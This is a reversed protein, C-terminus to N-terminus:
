FDVELGLKISRPDSFNWPNNIRDAYTNFDSHQQALDGTQLIVQNARGTTGDVNTENLRDLLNKVLMTLKCNVGKISWLNIFASLDVSISAPRESNNPYLKVLSLPSESLPAWTYPEGSDYYGTISAGFKETTYSINANLTHRQDWPMPILVDTPDIKGGARNFAFDPDNASGRTYQLTYNVGASINGLNFDYKLELGRANGYDVNTYLGYRIQNFTTIIKTGLLDYIDRYFVAVELGMASNLEQWLGIEYQITKQPKVLPNGMTTAFNAAPVIHQINQYLAYLPPMQFFHGYSFRLLAASGLKYSLGFRPSIQWVDPALPYTSQGETLQNGPNRWESPYRTNPDFYDLRLGFNVVMNDYEMKDQLYGAFEWPYVHYNNNSMGERTIPVPVYNGFVIKGAVPDFYTATDPLLGGDNIRTSYRYISHDIYSAGSKLTHHKNAQWIIDFKVSLDKTWNERWNKEMGGVSFGTFNSGYGYNDSVYRPDYQDEFKYAAEWSYIYNAKLEYFLSKSLAHNLTFGFLDSKRHLMGPGDPNYKWYHRDGDMEDSQNFSYM